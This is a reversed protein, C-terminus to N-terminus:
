WPRGDSRKGSSSSAGYDALKRIIRHIRNIDTLMDDIYQAAFEPTFSDLYGDVWQELRNAVHRLDRRSGKLAHAPRQCQSIRNVRRRYTKADLGHTVESSPAPKPKPTGDPVDPTLDRNVTGVGAGVVAAIARQSMGEGSLYGVLERRVDPELRVGITLADAAYATWSPFGLAAHIQGTKAEQVLAYLKTLNDKINNTLLRIRKDLREAAPKDLAPMVEADVVTDLTM